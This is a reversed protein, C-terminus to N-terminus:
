GSGLRPGWREGAGGMLFLLPPFPPLTVTRLGGSIGGCPQRRAMEGVEVGGSDEVRTVPASGAESSPGGGLGQPQQNSGRPRDREM